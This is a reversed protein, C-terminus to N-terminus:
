VHARGIEAFAQDYIIHSVTERSNAGPTDNDFYLNLPIHHNRVLYVRRVETYPGTVDLTHFSFADGWYGNRSVSVGYNQHYDIDTAFTNTPLNQNTTVTNQYLSTLSVNASDLPLGDYADYVFVQLDIIPWLNLVKSLLTNGSLHETDFELTDPRYRDRSGILQYRHGFEIPFVFRHELENFAVTDLHGNTRDFLSVTTKALPTKTQKDFTLVEVAARFPVEFIDPCHCDNEPSQCLVGPRNSSFFASRGESSIAYYMDDYSSNIPKGLNEPSTWTQANPVSSFIDFGGWNTHGNSSFYLVQHVVDFYPTMEDRFTNLAELNRPTTWVGDDNQRSVWLDLGGKGGDRDSAFYLIERGTATDITIAPQTTTTASIANIVTPLAEPKSWKEGIKLSRAIYCTRAIASDECVACYAHQGTPGIVFDGVFESPNETHLDLMELPTGETSKFVRVTPRKTQADLISSSFYMADGYRHPAIDGSYTNFNDPNHRVEPALAATVYQEAWLCHSRDEAAAKAYKGTPNQHLYEDYLTAAEAYKGLSRKSDALWYDTEDFPNQLKEAASIRSYYSESIRYASLNRAAEAGFFLAKPNNKKVDLVINYYALAPGFQRQEFSKEAQKEYARLSQSQLSLAGFLLFMALHWAKRSPFTRM